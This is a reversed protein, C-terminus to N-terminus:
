RASKLRDRILQWNEEFEALHELRVSCHTSEWNRPRSGGQRELYAAYNKAITEQLQLLTLLFFRDNSRDEPDIWIFAHILDPHESPALGTVTQSQDSADLEIEIFNEANFQWNKGAATKVQVPTTQLHENTVLVDFIPVNGSFPTAICNLRRSAEACFLFEGIQGVLKNHWGSSM